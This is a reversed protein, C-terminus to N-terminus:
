KHSVLHLKGKQCAAVLKDADEPSTLLTFVRSQPSLQNGVGVVEVNELVRVNQNGIVDVRAGPSIGAGDNVAISVARMGRPVLTPTEAM